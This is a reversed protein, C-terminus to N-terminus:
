HTMGYMVYNIGVRFVMSAFKEAYCPRDPFVMLMGSMFNEWDAAGHFDDVM